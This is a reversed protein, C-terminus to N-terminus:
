LPDGRTPSDTAPSTSALTWRVSGQKARILGLAAVKRVRSGPRSAEVYLAASMSAEPTRGATTMLGASIARDTLETATM